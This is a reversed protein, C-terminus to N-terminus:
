QLEEIPEIWFAVGKNDYDRDGNEDDLWVGDEVVFLPIFTADAAYVKIEGHPRMGKRWRIADKIRSTDRTIKEIHIKHQLSASRLSHNILIPFDPDPREIATAYFVARDLDQGLQIALTSEKELRFDCHKQEKVNAATLEGGFYDGAVVRYNGPPFDVCYTRGISFYSELERIYHRGDSASEIWGLQTKLYSTFEGNEAVVKELEAVKGNSVYLGIGLGVSTMLLLLSLISFRPPIM